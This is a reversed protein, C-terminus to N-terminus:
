RNIWMQAIQGDRDIQIWRQRDIQKQGDIWGDIWENRDTQGDMQRHRDVIQKLIKHKERYIERGKEGNVLSEGAM